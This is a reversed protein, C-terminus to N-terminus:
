SRTQIGVCVFSLFARVVERSVSVLVLKKCHVLRTRSTRGKSTHARPLSELVASDIQFRPLLPMMQNRLKKRFSVLCIRKSNGGEASNQWRLIQVRKYSNSLNPVSKSKETLSLEELFSIITSQSPVLLKAKSSGVSSLEFARFVVFCSYAGLKYSKQVLKNCTTCHRVLRVDLQVIHVVRVDCHVLQVDGRVLQVSKYLDYMATFSEYSVRLKSYSDYM